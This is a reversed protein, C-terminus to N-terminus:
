FRMMHLRSRLGEYKRSCLLPVSGFQTISQILDPHYLLHISHLLFSVSGCHHLGSSLAAIPLLLPKSSCGNDETFLQFLVFNYYKIQSSCCFLQHDPSYLRFHTQAGQETKCYYCHSKLSMM